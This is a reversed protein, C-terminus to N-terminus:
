GVLLKIHYSNKRQSVAILLVGRPIMAGILCVGTLLRIVDCALVHLFLMNGLSM